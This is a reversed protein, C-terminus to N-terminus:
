EPFMSLRLWKARADGCNSNVGWMYQLVVVAILDCVRCQLWCGLVNDLPSASMFAHYCFISISSCCWFYQLALWSSLIVTCRAFLIRPVLRYLLRWFMMMVKLDHPTVRESKIVGPIVLIFLTVIRTWAFLTVAWISVAHTPM